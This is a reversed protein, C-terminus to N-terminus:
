NATSFNPITLESESAFSSYCHATLLEFISKCFLLSLATLLFCDSDGIAKQKKSMAKQKSSM